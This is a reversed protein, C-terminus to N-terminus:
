MSEVFKQFEAPDIPKAFVPVGLQMYQDINSPRKRGTVFAVKIEDFSTDSRLKKYASMGDMGPMMVDFLIVNPKLSRIYTLAVAADAFPHVKINGYMELVSTVFARMDPDDDVCFVTKYHQHEDSNM